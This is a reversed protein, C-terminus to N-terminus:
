DLLRGTRASPELRYRGWLREVGACYKSFGRRVLGHRRVLREMWLPAVEAFKLEVVALSGPEGVSVPDDVPVWQRSHGSLSAEAWPQVELRTDFTVRAYDDVFSAWAERSYRVLLTPAAGSRALIQAFDALARPASADPTYIDEPWGAGRVARTKVVVDGLRRKVEVFTREFPPEGYARVRPKLRRPARDVNALYFDFAPTDFYLSTVPYRHEPAREAHDDLACTAALDARLAELAQSPVLYKLEYRPPIRDQGM